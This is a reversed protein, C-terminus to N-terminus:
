LGLDLTTLLELLGNLSGVLFGFGWFCASCAHGCTVSCPCLGRSLETEEEKEFAVKLVTIGLCPKWWSRYTIFRTKAINNCLYVHRYNVICPVLRYVMLSNTDVSVGETGLCGYVCSFWPSWSARDQSKLTHALQTHTWAFDMEANQTQVKYTIARSLPSQINRLDSLLTSQSKKWLFSDM